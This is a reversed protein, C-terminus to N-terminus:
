KEQGGISASVRKVFDQWLQYAIEQEKEALTANRLLELPYWREDKERYLFRRYVNGTHSIRWPEYTESLKTFAHNLSIIPQDSVNDPLRIRTSQLGIAKSGETLLWLGGTTTKFKKAQQDTPDGISVEVLSLDDDSNWNEIHETAIEHLRTRWPILHKKLDDTLKSQDKTALCALLTVGEDLVRISSQASMSELFAQDTISRSNIVLEAETGQEVPVIGGYECEWREDVYRVPIKVLRDSPSKKM